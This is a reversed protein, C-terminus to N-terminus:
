IRAAHRAIPDNRAAAAHYPVLKKMFLPCRPRADASVATATVAVRDGDM